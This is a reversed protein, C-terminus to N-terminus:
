SKLNQPPHKALIFLTAYHGGNASGQSVNDYIVKWDPNVKEWSEKQQVIKTVLNGAVWLTTNSFCSFLYFPKSSPTVEYYEVEFNTIIMEGNMPIIVNLMTKTLVRTIVISQSNLWDNIEKLNRNNYSTPTFYFQKKKMERRVVQNNRQATATGCDTCFNAGDISKVGCNYCFM